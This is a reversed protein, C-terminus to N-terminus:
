KAQLRVIKGTMEAVDKKKLTIKDVPAVGEASEEEVFAQIAHTDYHMPIVCKAELKVALKSADPVELVDGGGIPLFLIDIAGLEGLIKSDLQSPSSLAGLFVLTMGDMVVQYVTTYRTANDYETAIGFGRVTIDGVEYEGPGNIIFPDKNGYTVEEVGNFDPHRMSVIAIDAGFKVATFQKSQKSVPDFVLTTDGHTVKFCQGDHFTIVM